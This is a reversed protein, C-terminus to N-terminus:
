RPDFYQDIGLWFSRAWPFFVLPISLGLGLGLALAIERSALDGLTLVVVVIAAAVTAIACSIFIAGLYFGPEREFVTGCQGCASPSWFWSKAVRGQGCCPCRLLFSRGLVKLLRPM